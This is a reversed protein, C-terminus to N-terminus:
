TAPKEETQTIQSNSEIQQEQVQNQLLEQQKTFEEMRKENIKGQVEVYTKMVLQNANAYKDVCNRVCFDEQSEVERTFFGDVCSNFCRETIVNYLQLFDKFQRLQSDLDM